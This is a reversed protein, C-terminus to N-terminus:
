ERFTYDFFESQLELTGADVDVNGVQIVHRRWWTGTLLPTGSRAWRVSNELDADQWVALQTITM